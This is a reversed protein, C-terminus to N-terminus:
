NLTPEPAEGLIELAKDQFATTVFAECAVPGQLIALALLRDVNAKCDDMDLAGNVKWLGITKAYLEYTSEAVGPLLDPVFARAVTLWTEPEAYLQRTAMMSAVAIATAMDPNADVWAKTSYWVDGAVSSKEYTYCLVHYGGPNAAELSALSDAHIMAGELQPTAFAQAVAGSTGMVVSQVDEFKIGSDAFCADRLVRGIGAGGADGYVKGKLKEFSDIPHKAVVVFDNIYDNSAFIMINAGAQQLGALRGLSVEGANVSGAVVAAAGTTAQIGEYTVNVGFENKLIDAVMVSHVELLNPPASFVLSLSKGSVAAKLDDIPAAIGVGTTAAALAAVGLVTGLAKMGMRM